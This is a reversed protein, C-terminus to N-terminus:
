GQGPNPTSRNTPSRNSTAYNASTPKTGSNGAPPKSYSQQCKSIPHNIGCRFCQHKFSCGSCTVGRHYRWCFGKPIRQGTQKSKGAQPSLKAHLSHSRLWLEAHIQDWPAGQTQRISRFNEDYFKWNAGLTALERIISGYKMLAPTDQPVKESYIAVFVQFASVWQDISQVTQRKPNPALTLAPKGGEGKEVRFTYHEDSQTLSNNLLITFDVYENAWIQKKVKDPVRHTLPVASSLFTNKSQPPVVECPFLSGTVQQVALDVTQQVTQDTNCPSPNSEALVSGGNVIAGAGVTPDPVFQIAPIAAPVSQPVQVVEQLARTVATAITSTLTSLMEQSFAFQTPVPAGQTSESSGSQVPQLLAPHPHGAQDPAATNHGVVRRRKAVREPYGQARRPPMRALLNLKQANNNM